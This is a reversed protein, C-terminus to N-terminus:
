TLASRATRWIRFVLLATETALMVSICGFFVGMNVWYDLLAIYPTVTSVAEVAMDTYAEIDRNREPLWGAVQMAAATVLKMPNLADALKSFEGGLWDVFSQWWQDWNM